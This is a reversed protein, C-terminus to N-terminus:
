MAAIVVMIVWSKSGDPKSRLETRLGVNILDPPRANWKWRPSPGKAKGRATKVPKKPNLPFNMAESLVVIYVASNSIQHMKQTMLGLLVVNM